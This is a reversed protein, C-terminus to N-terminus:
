AVVESEELGTPILRIEGDATIYRRYERGILNAPLVIYGSGGTKRVARTGIYNIPKM